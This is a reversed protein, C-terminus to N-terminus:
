TEAVRIKVVVKKVTTPEGVAIGPMHADAPWLLMFQGPGLTLFEGTGVPRMIDKVEDYPEPTLRGLPAYGIRENGSAVCQLDIYRRHAEWRGEGPRKSVYESVLAYIDDGVLEHRGLELGALDTHQLFDLARAIRLGLPHYLRANTIQDIVV